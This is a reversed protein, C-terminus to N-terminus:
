GKEPINELLATLFKWFRGVSAIEVKEDPSHPHRLTPGFSIMEMDPYKEGIIGCELGAHIIMVQPEVGLTDVHVKKALQLFPSYLDSQWGPYNGTTEVKAGALAFVSEIMSVLYMKMKENSSRALFLVNIEDKASQVIALNSSTEIMDPAGPVRRLVGDHCAVIANILDDQVPAPIWTLPMDVKEAQFSLNEEVHAYEASIEQAYTEVASLLAAEEQLPLVVTATAERPIANRMNGGSVSSLRVKHNRVAEKLFRFLLKNANGRELHIDIGSHGGKLGSITLSYSVYAEDPGLDVPEDRYRITAKINVGGACGVYIENEQESDTNRLIEGKLFGPTLGKAGTMGTEEDQTFLAEIPGHRLTKSELVACISSLGIGNDAGLTTGQAKVWEGDVYPCIPDIEFNHPVHSDNQPVMDLHAQLVVPRRNEMGPTAPKRILVNGVADMQTELGLSRGFDAVYRTVKELHGSPRPIACLKEFHSWVETPQLSSLFNKM